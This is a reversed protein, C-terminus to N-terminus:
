AHVVLPLGLLITELFNRQREATLRDSSLPGVVNDQRYWDFHQGQITSLMAIIGQGSIVQPCQVCGWANFV